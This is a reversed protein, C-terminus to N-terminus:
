MKLFAVQFANMCRLSAPLSRNSSSLLLLLELCTHSPFTLSHVGTDNRWARVLEENRNKTCAHFLVKLANRLMLSSSNPRSRDEPLRFINGSVVHGATEVLLTDSNLLWLLLYVKGDHGEFIFRFTSRASSFEALLQATVSEVYCSRPLMTIDKCPPQIMIETIYYKMTDPSLREGFTAKCRQCVVAAHEESNQPPSHNKSNSSCIHPVEQSLAENKCNVLIYTDGVFCDNDRPRLVKNAFPDAHCCWEEVLTNWNESPLPLVRLFNREKMIVAGCSQCHFVYSKEGKLSEKLTPLLKTSCYAQVQLRLHLGDGPIYQVGRCSSPIIRLGSPLGIRVSDEATKMELSAATMSIDLPLSESEPRGLILLATQARKKIEM